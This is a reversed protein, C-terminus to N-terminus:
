RMPSFDTPRLIRSRMSQVFHSTRNRFVQWAPDADMAARRRERDGMDAYRWMHVVENVVGADTTFWGVLDGLHSIQLAMGEAVYIALYEKVYQPHIAYTREDLIM